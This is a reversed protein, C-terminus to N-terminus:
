LIRNSYLDYYIHRVTDLMHRVFKPKVFLAIVLLYIEEYPLYLRLTCLLVM